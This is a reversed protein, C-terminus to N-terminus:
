EEMFNIHVSKVGSYYVQTNDSRKYNRCEGRTGDKWTKSIGCLEINNFYCKSCLKVLSGPFEVYETDTDVRIFKGTIDRFVEGVPRTIDYKGSGTTPKVTYVSYEM